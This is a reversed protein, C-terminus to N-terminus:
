IGITLKANFSNQGERFKKKKKKDAERFSIAHPQNSQM